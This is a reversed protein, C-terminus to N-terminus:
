NEFAFKVINAGMKLAKERVEAPDNHVEPDEWGDGLDSEYTFLLVLRTEVFIGMAQPRKGDHEHIKPLGEPFKFATSFIPHNLPLEILEKEPFVKKLEKTIYPKMGYNDDIHLFGGSLLYNRLNEADTESFFVNGHGTMHLFPYQFIDSSGTEVTEPKPNIQTNINQNCFAILNPLATPNGYWDGGGKYKLVALNQSFVFFSFLCFFISFVQKM